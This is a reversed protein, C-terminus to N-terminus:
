NECTANAADHISPGSAATREIPPKWGMASLRRLEEQEIRKLKEERLLRRHIEKQAEAITPDNLPRSM